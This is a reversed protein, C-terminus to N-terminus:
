VRVLVLGILAHESVPVVVREVVSWCSTLVVSASVAPIVVLSGLLTPVIVIRTMPITVRVVPPVGHRM